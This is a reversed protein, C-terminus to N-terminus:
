EKVTYVILRQQYHNGSDDINGSCTIINLGLKSSDVSVMASNM